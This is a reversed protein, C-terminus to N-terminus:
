NFYFDMRSNLLTETEALSAQIRKKQEEIATIKEAFEQQLSLPPVPIQIVEIKKLTLRTIAAGGMNKRINIYMSSTNLTDRLYRNNILSNNTKLLAVSSLLSFEEKLTNIM